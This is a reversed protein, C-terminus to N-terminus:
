AIDMSRDAVYRNREHKIHLTTRTVDRNWSAAIVVVPIKSISDFGDILGLCVFM